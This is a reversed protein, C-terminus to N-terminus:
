RVDYRFVGLYSGVLFVLAWAVLVATHVMAAQIEEEPWAERYLLRPM